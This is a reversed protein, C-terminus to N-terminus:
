RTRIEWFTDSEALVRARILAVPVIALWALLWAPRIRRSRAAPRAGRDTDAGTVLRATM